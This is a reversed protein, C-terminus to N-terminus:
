ATAMTLQHWLSCLKERMKEPGWAALLGILIGVAVATLFFLNILWYPSWFYDAPIPVFSPGSLPFTVPTPFTM